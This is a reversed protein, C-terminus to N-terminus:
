RKLEYLRVCGEKLVIREMGAATMKMECKQEAASLIYIKGNQSVLKGFYGKTRHKSILELESNWVQLSTDGTAVIPGVGPLVGQFYYIESSDINRIAKIERKDLDVAVISGYGYIYLLNTQEDLIPKTFQDASENLEMSWLPNLWPDYATLQKGCGLLFCDRWAVPTSWHHSSQLELESKESGDTLFAVMVATKMKKELDYVASVRGNGIRNSSKIEYRQEIELEWEISDTRINWCKGNIFVRDRDLFAGRNGRLDDKRLALIEGSESFVYTHREDPKEQVFTLMVADSEQELDYRRFLDPMVDSEFLKRLKGDRIDWYSMTRCAYPRRVGWRIFDEVSFEKKGHECVAPYTRLNFDGSVEDLLVLKTQNKIKKEAQKRELYDTLVAMDPERTEDIWEPHVWLPCQLVCELLQLSIEPNEEKFITQLIEEKEQPLGLRVAWAKSKGPLRAVEDYAAPIHRAVCKGSVHVSFEVFDDDFYETALVPNELAKSIRRAEKKLNGWELQESAVTIWGSLISRVEFNPCLAEVASLEAGQINLHAFSTGM